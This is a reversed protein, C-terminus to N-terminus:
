TFLYLDWMFKIVIAIWIALRELWNWDNWNIRDPDIRQGVGITLKKVVKTKKVSGFIFLILSM